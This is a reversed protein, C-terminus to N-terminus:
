DPCPWIAAAARWLGDIPTEGASSPNAQAWAVIAKRAEDLTPVPEACVWPEIREARVMERYLQGAGMIYGSCFPADDGTSGCLTMLDGFTQMPPPEQQARVAGSGLSLIIASAMLIRRM